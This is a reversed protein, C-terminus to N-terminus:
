LIYLSLSIPFSLIINIARALDLDPRTPSSGTRRARSMGQAAHFSRETQCRAARRIATWRATTQKSCSCASSPTRRTWGSATSARARHTVNPGRGGEMTPKVRLRASSSATAAAPAPPRRVRCFRSHDPEPAAAGVSDHTIQGVRCFRSNDQITGVIGYKDRFNYSRLLISSCTTDITLRTLM